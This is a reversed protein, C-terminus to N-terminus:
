SEDGLLRQQGAAELAERRSQDPQKPQDDRLRYERLFALKDGNFLFGVNLWYMGPRDSEALFNLDLLNRLGRQFTRESIAETKADLDRFHIWIRDEKPKSSVRSFLVEFMRAGASSLGSFEKVGGAYLKVFKSKDVEVIHHFGAPAVLEGGNMNMVMFRDGKQNSIRKTGTKMLGTATTLFPNHDYLQVGPRRGRRTVSEPIEDIEDDM